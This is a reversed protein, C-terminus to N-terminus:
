KNLIKFFKGIKGMNKKLIRKGMNKKLIRNLTSTRNSSEQVVIPANSKQQKWIEKEKEHEGKYKISEKNYNNNFVENRNVIKNGKNNSGKNSPKSNKYSITNSKIIQSGEYIYKGVELICELRKRSFNHMLDSQLLGIYDRDWQDKSRLPEIEKHEEWIDIGKSDLYNIANKIDGNYDAPDKDIYLCIAIKIEQIDESNVADMFYKEPKFSM